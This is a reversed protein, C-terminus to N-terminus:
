YNSLLYTKSKIDFLLKNVTQTAGSVADVDRGVELSKKAHYGVFQKLWGPATVAQGHSSQFKVIRIKQVVKDSNYLIYYDLYDASAETGHGSRSTEVRGTYVYRITAKKSELEYFAGNSLSKVTMTKLSYESGAMLRKLEAHLPKEFGSLQASAVLQFPLLSLLIYITRKM